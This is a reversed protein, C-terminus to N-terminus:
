ASGRCTPHASGVRSLLFIRTLFYVGGQVAKEKIIEGVSRIPQQNYIQKYGELAEADIEAELQNSKRLRRQHEKPIEHLQPLIEHVLRVNQPIFIRWLKLENYASGTTDLSDLKLNGYRELLGEQYKKLDFDPTIGAIEKLKKEISEQIELELVASLEPSKKIIRKVEKVYQNAVRDWDFGLPMAPSYRQLWIAGLRNADIDRCDKEFAKGLLPKIEEDRLFKGIRIEYEDRIEAGSLECEFELEDQVIRLFQQLAEGLAKKLVDAKASQVGEKICDKFFDKVYDELAEKGLKLLVEKFVLDKLILVGLATWPEAM